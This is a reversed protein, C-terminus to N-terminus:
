NDGIKPYHSPLDLRTMQNSKPFTILLFTICYRIGGINLDCSIFMSTCPMLREHGGEKLKIFFWISSIIHVMDYSVNQDLPPWFCSPWQDNNTQFTDNCLLWQIWATLVLKFDNDFLNLIIIWPLNLLLWIGAYRTSCSRKLHRYKVDPGSWSLFASKPGAWVLAM